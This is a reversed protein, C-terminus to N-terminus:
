SHSLFDTRRDLAGVADHELGALTGEGARLDPEVLRLREVTYDRTKWHQESIRDLERALVNLESSMSARLILRKAEYILESVSVQNGIFKAYVADFAKVSAGEVFLGSVDNLFEYGTSGHVPWNEPLRENRELIKEVVLYLPSLVPARADAARLTAFGVMRGSDEDWLKLRTSRM